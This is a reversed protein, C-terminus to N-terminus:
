FEIVKGDQNSSLMCADMVRQTLLAIDPWHSEVKGSTAIEGFKRFLNAEQSNETSNGSEVTEFDKRNEVMAFDCDKEVFEPNWASFKLTDGQYPLVFDSVFIAGETGSIHAWQQHGTVFSNYFSSSVGNAFQLDGEIEMPVSDPSDNRKHSTLMRASVHTPTEYNMVWLAFRITYWGLDGLCGFPELDSNTRINAEDFEDGGCFSFQTAIRKLKGVQSEIAKRILAMRQTHMYMVGDMFQVGNSNCADIMASLDEASSACPKECMVHKGSEAAKIVWDKRLATPLPIYVADIDDASLLESYGEVARPKEDFPVVSQLQDIFKASKEGSRSGVAVVIGNGSKKIAQWNKQGITATSM